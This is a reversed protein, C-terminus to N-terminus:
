KQSKSNDQIEKYDLVESFEKIIEESLILEVEKNEVKRIIKDSCGDWFTASILVNTDLTIRM